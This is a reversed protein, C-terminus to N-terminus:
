VVGMKKLMALLIGMVLFAGPPLIMGTAPSSLIFPLFQHGFIVIGGTGFFERIGSILVIILAFGASM